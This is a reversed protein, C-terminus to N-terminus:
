QADYYDVDLSRDVRIPITADIVSAEGPTHDLPAM